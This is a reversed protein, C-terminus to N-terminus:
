THPAFRQARKEEQKLMRALIDNDPYTHVLRSEFRRWKRLIKKRGFYASYSCIRVFDSNGINDVVVLRGRGPALRQFVINKPKLTMTIINDECLASKLDKLARSLAHYNNRTHERNALYYELTRSIEGTDDRILEFVAGKGLNTEVLGHFHPLARWSVHRKALFGYYSLERKMEERGRALLIKVCLDPNGPHVYCARHAGHGIRLRALAVGVEAQCPVVDVQKAHDLFLGLVVEALFFFLGQGVREM